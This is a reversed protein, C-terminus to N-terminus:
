NSEDKEEKLEKVMIKSCEKLCTIAPTINGHSFRVLSEFLHIIAQQLFFANCKIKHFSENSDEDGEIRIYMKM